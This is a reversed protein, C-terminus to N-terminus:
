AFRREPTWTDGSVQRVPLGRAQAHAVAEQSLEIGEADVGAHLAQEVFTGTSAGIDLWPGRAALPYLRQLRDRAIAVRVPVASAFGAHRGERYSEEHHGLLQEPTPMPRLAVLGCAQCRVYARGGKEFLQRVSTGGCLVCAQVTVGEVPDAQMPRSSL